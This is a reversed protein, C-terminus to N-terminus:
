GGPREARGRGGGGGRAGRVWVEAGHGERGGVGGGGGGRGQGGQEDTGAGGAGAVASLGGVELRHGRLRVHVPHDHPGEKARAVLEARGRLQDIGGAPR